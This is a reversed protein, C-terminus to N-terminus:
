TEEINRLIINEREQEEIETSKEVKTRDTRQQYRKEEVRKVFEEQGITEIKKAYKADIADLQIREDHLIKTLKEVQDLTMVPLINIWYQKEEENMSESRLILPILTPHKKQIEEPIVFTPDAM